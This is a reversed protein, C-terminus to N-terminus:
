LLKRSEEVIASTDMDRDKWPKLLVIARGTHMEESAGFGGPVVANIRDIAESKSRLAM